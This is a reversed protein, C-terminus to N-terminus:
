RLTASPSEYGRITRRSQYGRNIWHRAQAAVENHFVVALMLPILPLLVAMQLFFTVLNPAPWFQEAAACGIAFPVVSLATRLWAQWLYTKVSIGVLASIYRPWLLLQIIVSPITTGWAVGYIGMRRVLVVSIALNAAAEGLAWFAIRKHKEMGYIIGGCAENACSLVVSLLLIQM